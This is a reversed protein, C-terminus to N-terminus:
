ASHSRLRRLFEGVTLAEIDEPDYYNAGQSLAQERGLYAIFGPASDAEVANQAIDGLTVPGGPCWLLYVEPPAKVPAPQTIAQAQQERPLEAIKAARSVAIRGGDVAAVVEPIAKEIVKTAMDVTKGSVQLAKGAQDRAKGSEQQPFNEV